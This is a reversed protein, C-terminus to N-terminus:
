PGTAKGHNLLDVGVTDQELKPFRESLAKRGRKKEVQSKLRLEQGM